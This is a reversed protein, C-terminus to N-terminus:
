TMARQVRKEIAPPLTGACPPRTNLCTLCHASDSSARPIASGTSGGAAWIRPAFPCVPTCAKLFFRM